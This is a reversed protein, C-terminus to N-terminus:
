RQYPMFNNTEMLILGVHGYFMFVTNQFHTKYFVSKNKLRVLQSIKFKAVGFYLAFLYCLCGSVM